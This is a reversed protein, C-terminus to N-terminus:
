MMKQIMELMAMHSNIADISLNALVAKPETLPEGKKEQQVDLLMEHVEMQDRVYAVDFERGSMSKMKDLKQTMEPPMESMPVPQAGNAKLVDAVTKQEAAELEAFKKVEPTQAKQQAIKSAELSLTGLMLTQKAYDGSMGGPMHHDARAVAAAALPAAAAAALAFLGARRTMPRDLPLDTM